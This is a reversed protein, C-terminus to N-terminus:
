QDRHHLYEVIFRQLKYKSFFADIDGFHSHWSISGLWLGTKAKMM